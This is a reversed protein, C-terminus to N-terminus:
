SDNAVYRLLARRSRILASVGARSPERAGEGRPEGRWLDARARGCFFYPDYGFGVAGRPMTSSTSGHVRLRRRVSSARGTSTRRRASMTRAGIRWAAFVSSCCRNNEDDLAQGTLDTRGSWRKSMCARVAASRSRRRPRFRRRLTPRGSRAHFYRAKALANEEFTDFVELADEDRRRPSARM